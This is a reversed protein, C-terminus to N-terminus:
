ITEWSAELAPDGGKFKHGDVIDGVTPATQQKPEPKKGGGIRKPIRKKLAAVFSKPLTDEYTDLYSAIESSSSDIATNALLNATDIFQQIQAAGLREGKLLKNYINSVREDVGASNEATAFESERVVSQPDLAKMFKFVLAISAPGGGLKGLKSLDKATKYIMVSDKLLMTVDKNIGQRGKADIQRGKAAAEAKAAAAKAELDLKIGESLTFEGTNPNFVYGVMDGTGMKFPDKVLSPDAGIAGAERQTKMTNTWSEVLGPDAAYAQMFLEQRQAPDETQQSEGLLKFAAERSQAQGERQRNQGWAQAMQSFGALPNGIDIAFPNAM